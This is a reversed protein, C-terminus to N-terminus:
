EESHYHTHLLVFNIKTFCVLFLVSIKFTLVFMMCAQAYKQLAGNRIQQDFLFIIRVNHTGTKIYRIQFTQQLERLELLLM